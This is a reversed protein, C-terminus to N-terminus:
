SKDLFDIQLVEARRAMEELRMSQDPRRLFCVRILEVSPLDSPNPHYRVNTNDTATTNDAATTPDTVSQWVL